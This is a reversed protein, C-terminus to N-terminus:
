TIFTILTEVCSTCVNQSDGHMYPLGYCKKSVEPKGTLEADILLQKLIDITEAKYKEDKFLIKMPIVTSRAVPHPSSQPPVLSQLHKLSEFQTVLFQMIYHIARKRIEEGDAASPLIDSISLTDPNRQPATDTWDVEWDPLNNIAIALRATLNLMTSHRDLVPIHM